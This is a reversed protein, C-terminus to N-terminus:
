EIGHLRDFIRELREVLLQALAQDDVTKVVYPEDRGMDSMVAWRESSPSIWARPKGDSVQLM